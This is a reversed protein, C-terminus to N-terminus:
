YNSHHMSSEIVGATLCVASNWKRFVLKEKKVEVLNIMVDEM